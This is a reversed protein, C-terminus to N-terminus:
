NVLFSTKNVLSDSLTSIKNDKLLKELVHKAKEYEFHIPCPKVANCKLLGLGCAKFVEIGDISKVVKMVPQEKQVSTMYFGGHPGKTSNIIGDKVLVQLVKSVTHQSSNINESIELISKKDKGDVYKALYIVAKIGVKCTISLM